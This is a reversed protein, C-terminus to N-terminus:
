VSSRDRHMKEIRAVLKGLNEDKKNMECICYFLLKTLIDKTYAFQTESVSLAATLQSKILLRLADIEGGLFVLDDATLPFTPAM